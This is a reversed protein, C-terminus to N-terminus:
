FALEFILGSNVDYNDLWTQKFREKIAIVDEISHYRDSEMYRNMIGIMDDLTTAFFVTETKRFFDRNFMWGQSYEIEDVPFLNVYYGPIIEMKQVANSFKRKFEDYYKLMRRNRPKKKGTATSKINFMYLDKHEKGDSYKNSYYEESIHKATEEDAERYQSDIKIREELPLFNYKAPIITVNPIVKWIHMTASM